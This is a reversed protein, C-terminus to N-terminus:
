EVGQVSRRLVDGSAPGYNMVLDLVSLGAVFGPFAQRREAEEVHLVRVPVGVSQRDREASEPLTLLAEAGVAEVVDALAAPAGPLASARVLDASAELWRAAWAISAAALDALSGPTDLVADWSPAVHEFYPAMGYAARVTKRHRERWGDEVVEVRTLPQGLGAHRRPVSLWQAGQATRIRARNHGGQRSFPFTDALVLRDARLLLAAYALRPAFEPPRIATVPRIKLTPEAPVGDM